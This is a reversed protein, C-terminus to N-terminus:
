IGGVLHVQYGVRRRKVRRDSVKQKKRILVNSDYKRLCLGHDMGAWWLSENDSSDIRPLVVHRNFPENTMPITRLVKLSRKFMGTLKVLMQPVETGLRPDWVFVV